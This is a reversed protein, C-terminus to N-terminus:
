EIIAMVSLACSMWGGVGTNSAQDSRNELVANFRASAIPRTQAVNASLPQPPPETLTRLLKLPGGTPVVTGGGAVGPGFAGLPKKAEPSPSTKSATM